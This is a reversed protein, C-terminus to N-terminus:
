LTSCLMLEEEKVEEVGRVTENPHSRIPCWWRRIPDIVIKELAAVNKMLHMVLEGVPPHARYGVVEVMKLNPHPSCKAAKEKEEGLESSPFYFKLVLRELYPSAKIFESLHCLVWYDNARVMLELHKLNSLIPFVHNQYYMAGDIALMLVELQSLCCSRQTFPLQEDVCVEVLLPVNSLLWNVRRGAYMFSVLNADRIEISRLAFCFQIDLYKLALSSGVVRLNVLKNNASEVKLRELVPCNSLLYEIVKGSVDVYKFHLVRLFKFGVNYGSSHLSSIDSHTPNLKLTSDNQLGIVQVPFPYVDNYNRRLENYFVLELIQVRKNMAFQIWKDISSTFHGDIDFYARFQEIVPGRHQEVVTNVWDVYRQRLLDKQEPEVRLLRCYHEGLEHKPDFDLTVTSAWVYQWRKSLISTAGAEKLPLLSVITFLIEEPLKSIRDVLNCEGGPHSPKRWDLNNKTWWFM